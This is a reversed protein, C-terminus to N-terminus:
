VAEAASAIIGDVFDEVEFGGDGAIEVAEEGGLVAVAGDADTMAFGEEFGGVPRQFNAFEFIDGFGSYRKAAWPLFRAPGSQRWNRYRFVNSQPLARSERRRQIRRVLQAATRVKFGNGRLGNSAAGAAWLMASSVSAKM